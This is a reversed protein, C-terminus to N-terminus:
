FLSLEPEILVYGAVHAKGVDQKGSDNKLEGCLFFGARELAWELFEEGDLVVRDANADVFGHAGGDGMKRPRSVTMFVRDVGGVGASEDLLGVVGSFSEVALSLTLM